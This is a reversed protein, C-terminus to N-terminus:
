YYLVWKLWDSDVVLWFFSLSSGKWIWLQFANNKFWILGHVVSLENKLKLPQFYACCLYFYCFGFAFSLSIVLRTIKRECCCVFPQNFLPAVLSAKSSKGNLFDLIWLIQFFAHGPTRSGLALTSRIFLFFPWLLEFCFYLALSRSTIVCIGREWLVVKIDKDNAIWMRFVERHRSNFDPWINRWELVSIGSRVLLFLSSQIFKQWEKTSSLPIKMSM